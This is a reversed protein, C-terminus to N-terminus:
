LERSDFFSRLHFFGEAKDWKFDRLLGLPLLTSLFISCLGAHFALANVAEGWHGDRHWPFRGTLVESQGAAGVATELQAAREEPFTM